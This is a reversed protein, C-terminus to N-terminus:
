QPLWLFSFFTFQSYYVTTIAYFSVPLCECVVCVVCVHACRPGCCFQIKIRRPILPSAVRAKLVGVVFKYMFRANDSDWSSVSSEVYVLASSSFQCESSAPSASSGLDSCPSDPAPLLIPLPPARGLSVRSPFFGGRLVAWRELSLSPSPGPQRTAGRPLPLPPPSFPSVERIDQEAALFGQLEVFIESVSM